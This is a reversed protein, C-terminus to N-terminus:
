NVKDARKWNSISPHLLSAALIALAPEAPIRYRLSGVTLAHIITLYIAPLLLYIKIPRRLHGVTLGLLCLLDFPISYALAILKYRPNGFQDSLPMPSWTRGAKKLALDFLREPHQRIFDVAKLTLYQNRGLEDMLSLQPMTKVFQQNSAGTADPNYGDYLTIGANTDTWVLQHLLRYNRLTWPLLCAAVLLLMTTGVPLPWRGLMGRSSSSQYAAGKRHNVFLAGIGLVLPFLAASPRVLVALALILGGALWVPARGPRRESGFGAILLLMGWVLMAVFLTESLILGSFYILLPNVTVIAAAFLAARRDAGPMLLRALLYIAMVTSTDLLAQAIRVNRLNGGLAAIFLPYGPMRFAYVRDRFRPDIFSYGQGHLLNRALSVYEVQDPLAALSEDTVPRSLGWLLRVALALALLL